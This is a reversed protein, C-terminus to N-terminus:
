LIKSVENILCANVKGKRYIHANKESKKREKVVSISCQLAINAASEKSCSIGLFEAIRRM